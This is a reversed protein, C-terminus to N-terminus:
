EASAQVPVSEAARRALFRDSIGVTRLYLTGFAAAWGATVVRAQQLDPVPSFVVGLMRNATLTLFSWFAWAAHFGLAIAGAFLSYFGAFALLGAVSAPVPFLPRAPAEPNPKTDM